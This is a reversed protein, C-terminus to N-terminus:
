VPVEAWLWVVSVTAAVLATVIAVGSNPPLYIGGPSILEVETGAILQPVGLIKTITTAAVAQAEDFAQAAADGLRLNIAGNGATLAPDALVIGFTAALPLSAIVRASILRVALGKSSGSWFVFNAAVLATAAVSDAAQYLQGLEALGALKGLEIRSHTDSM